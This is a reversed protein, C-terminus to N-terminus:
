KKCLTGLGLYAGSNQIKQGGFGEYHTLNSQCNLM